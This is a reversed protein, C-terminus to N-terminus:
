GESRNRNALAFAQESRPRARVVTEHLPQELLERPPIEKLCESRLSKESFGRGFEPKLQRSLASVIEAGYEARREKLNERRIRDGVQWHLATLSVNVIQAVQQRATLILERLKTFLAKPVARVVHAPTKHTARRATV